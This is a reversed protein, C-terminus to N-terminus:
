CYFWCDTMYIDSMACLANSFQRRCELTDEPPQTTTTLMQLGREYFQIADTGFSLQGLHLYKAHGHNPAMAVAALFWRRAENAAHQTDTLEQSSLTDLHLLGLTEAIQANHPEQQFARELFRIALLPQCTDRAKQAQAVLDQASYTPM